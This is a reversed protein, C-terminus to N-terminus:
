FNIVKKRVTLAASIVKNALKTIICQMISSAVHVYRPRKPQPIHSYMWHVYHYYATIALFVAVASLSVTGFVLLTVHIPAYKLVGLITSLFGVIM